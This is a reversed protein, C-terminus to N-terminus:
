PTATVISGCTTSCARRTTSLPTVAGGGVRLVGGDPTRTVVGGSLVVCEHLRFVGGVPEGMAGAAGVSVVATGGLQRAAARVVGGDPVGTAADRADITVGDTLVGTADDERVDITM